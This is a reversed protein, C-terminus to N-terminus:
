DTWKGCKVCNNQRSGFGCNNCLKAKFDASGVWKGCKVCNDKRSGFGCDNCLRARIDVSGVWKGCKVCNHQRSGFGCNNCLKAPIKPSSGALNPSDAGAGFSCLLTLFVLIILQRRM